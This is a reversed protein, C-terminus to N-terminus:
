AWSNRCPPTLIGGAGMAMIRAQALRRIRAPPALLRKRAEGPERRPSVVFAPLALPPAQAGRRPERRPSVVFAPLALPPTM